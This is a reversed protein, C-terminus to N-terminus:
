TIEEKPRMALVTIIKRFYIFLDLFSVMCCSVTVWKPSSPVTYDEAQAFCLCNLM